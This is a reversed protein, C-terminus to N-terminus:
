VYQYKKYYELFRFAEHITDLFLHLDVPNLRPVTNSICEILSLKYPQANTKSNYIAYFFSQMHQKFACSQIYSHFEGCDLSSDSFESLLDQLIHEIKTSYKKRKNKDIQNFCLAEGISTSVSLVIDGWM